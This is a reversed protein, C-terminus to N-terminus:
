ISVGKEKIIKLIEEAVTAPDGELIQAGATEPPPFVEEVFARPSLDDATLGLDQLPVVKLEKKAAKRIGMISVYRPVNIGTQISLLAPLKVRSVEDTGGELEVRVTVEGDQPEVRTVVAAHGIGLLEALMIGVAGENLDDTQVGTFILDWKMSQIVAALIKSIVFPDLVADGPEVRVAKDAGM